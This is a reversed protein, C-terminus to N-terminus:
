RAASYPVSVNPDTIGLSIVNEGPAFIDLVSGWNSDVWRQDAINSAGVTIVTPERAPSIVSADINNPLLDLRKRTRLLYEGPAEVLAVVM